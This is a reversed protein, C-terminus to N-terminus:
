WIRGRSPEPCHRTPARSPQAHRRLDFGADRGRRRVGPRLEAGHGRAAGSQVRGRDLLPRRRGTIAGGSLALRAQLANYAYNHVRTELTPFGGAAHEGFDLTAALSVDSSDLSAQAHDLVTGSLAVLTTPHDPDDSAISLNGALNGAAGTNMTIAHVAAPAGAGLTFSGGPASFGAPATFSYDLADAPITAPNTISLNQSAVASVIVTGFALPGSASIKSPVQLDL